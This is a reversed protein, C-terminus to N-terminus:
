LPQGKLMKHFNTACKQPACEGGDDTGHGYGSLFAAVLAHRVKKNASVMKDIEGIIDIRGGIDMLRNWDLEQRM